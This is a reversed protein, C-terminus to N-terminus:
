CGKAEACGGIVMYGYSVPESLKFSPKGEGDLICEMFYWERTDTVIGFVKDVDQEDEMENVKRKRGTGNTCIGLRVGEYFRGEQNRNLWPEEWNFSMEFLDMRQLTKPRLSYLSSSTAKPCSCSFCRVFTKIFHTIVDM